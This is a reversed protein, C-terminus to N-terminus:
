RMTTSSNVVLRYFCIRDLGRRSTHTVKDLAATFGQESSFAEQVLKFFKTHIDLITEVYLKPDKLFDISSFSRSFLLFSVNIATGSVREIADIGMQRIHEEVIRKLELTANPVRSVLKFLLALDLRSVISSYTMFMNSLHSEDIQKGQHKEDRLLIKAEAYIVELQDHILVEEVKKILAALTSPHLYSQVRHFEEDLRQSVQLLCRDIITIIM